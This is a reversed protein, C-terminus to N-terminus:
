AAEVSPGAILARPELLLLLEGECEVLGRAARAWGGELATRVPAVESSAEVIDEVADVLLAYPYGDLPVVVADHTAARQRNGRELSALCDVVTLVRSRLASLGAIHPAARPIPTLTGLEVVSEVDAAPFAVREGALRVILILETM